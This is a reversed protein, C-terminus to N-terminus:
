GLRWSPRLLVNKPVVLFQIPRVDDIIRNFLAAFCASRARKMVLFNHSNRAMRRRQRLTRSAIAGRNATSMSRIFRTPRIRLRGSNRLEVEPDLHAGISIITTESSCRCRRRPDRDRPPSLVCAMLHVLRRVNGPSASSRNGLVLAIAPRKSKAWDIPQHSAAGATRELGVRRHVASPERISDVVGHREEADVWQRRRRM